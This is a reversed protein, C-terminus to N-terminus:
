ALESRIFETLDQESVSPLAQIKEAMILAAPMPLRVTLYGTADVIEALKNVFEDHIEVFDISEYNGPETSWPDCLEPKSVVFHASCPTPRVEYARCTRSERDLVPCAQNMQFWTSPRSNELFPLLLNAAAKVVEWEKREVLHQHIVLAEALSVFIMRSCCASCGSRCPSKDQLVLLRRASSKTAAGMMALKVESLTESPRIPM